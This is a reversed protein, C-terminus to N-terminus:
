ELAKRENILEMLNKIKNNITLESRIRCAYLLKLDDLYTTIQADIKAIQENVVPNAYKIEIFIEELLEKEQKDAQAILASIRNANMELLEKEKLVKSIHSPSLDIVMESKKTFLGM